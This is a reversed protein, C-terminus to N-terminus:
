KRETPFGSPGRPNTPSETMLQSAELLRVSYLQLRHPCCVMIRLSTESELSYFTLIQEIKMHKVM